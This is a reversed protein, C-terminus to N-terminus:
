NDHFLRDLLGKKKPTATPSPTETPYKQRLAVPAVNIATANTCVVLGIDSDSIGYITDQKISFQVNNQSAVKMYPGLDAQDIHGNLIVQYDPHATIETIFAELNNRDRVEAITMTLSVRERFTGLYHRQEDPNIKPAGYMASQLHEEMPSKDTM